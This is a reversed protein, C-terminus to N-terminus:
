QNWGPWGQRSQKQLVIFAVVGVATLFWLSIDPGTGQEIRPNTSEHVDPVEWGPYPGHSADLVLRRGGTYTVGYVHSFQDHGQEVAAVCLYYPLGMATVLAGVYITFDDCDGEARGQADAKLSLDVPHTFVESVPLGGLSPLAAQDARFVMRGKVWEWARCARDVDAPAGLMLRRAEAQIRPHAAADRILASMQRLTEGLQEQVSDGVVTVRAIPHGEIMGVGMGVGHMQNGSQVQKYLLLSRM